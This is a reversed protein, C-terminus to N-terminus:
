SDVPPRHPANGTRASRFTIAALSVVGLVVLAIWATTWWALTGDTVAAAPIGWPLCWVMTPTAIERADEARLVADAHLTAEDDAVAPHTLVHRLQVLMVAAVGFLGILLITAAYRVGPAPSALAGATLAIAGVFTGATLAARPWGLVTRWSPRTLHAARRPLEAGVQRDIRRVRRDLSAQALVFIAVVGALFPLAGNEYPAETAAEAPLNTSYVLALAIIFAALLIQGALRSSQRAALRRALLPTAPVHSLGHGSLWLRARELDVPRDRREDKPNM